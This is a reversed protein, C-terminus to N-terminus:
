ENSNRNIQIFEIRSNLLTARAEARARDRSLGELDRLIQNKLRFEQETTPITPVKALVGQAYGMKYELERMLLLNNNKQEIATELDM